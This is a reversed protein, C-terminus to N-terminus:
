SGRKPSMQATCSLSRPYTTTGAARRSGCRSWAVACAFPESASAAGPSSSGAPPSAGCRLLVAPAASGGAARQASGATAAQRRRGVGAQGRASAEGNSGSAAGGRLARDNGFSKPELLSEGAGVLQSRPCEVRLAPLSALGVVSSACGLSSDLGSRTRKQTPSGSQMSSAFTPAKGAPAEGGAKGNIVGEGCYSRAAPKGIPDLAHSAVHRARPRKGQGSFSTMSAM